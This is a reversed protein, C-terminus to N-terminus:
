WGHDLFSHCKIKRSKWQSSKNMPNLASSLWSRRCIRHFTQIHVILLCFNCKVVIVIILSSIIFFLIRRALWDSEINQNTRLFCLLNPNWGYLSRLFPSSIRQPLMTSRRTWRLPASSYSAEKWFNCYELEMKRLKTHRHTRHQLNLYWHTKVDRIQQIKPSIPFFVGLLVFSWNKTRYICKQM